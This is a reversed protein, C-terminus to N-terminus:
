SAALHLNETQQSGPLRIRLHGLIQENRYSRNFSVDGVDVGLNADAASGTTNGGGGVGVGVPDRLGTQTHYNRIQTDAGIGFRAM